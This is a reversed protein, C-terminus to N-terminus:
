RQGSSVRCIKYYSVCVKASLHTKTVLKMGFVDTLKYEFIHNNTVLFGICESTM